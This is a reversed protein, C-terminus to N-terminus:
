LPLIKELVRAIGNDDVDAAVIDAENRVWEDATPMAIGIAAARFMSVDNGGDGFAVTKSADLHLREVLSTLALGKTAERATVDAFAPHWRACVADPISPMLAQEQEVTFFPSVQLVPEDPDLRSITSPFDGGGVQLFKEFLERVLPKENHLAIHREGVIVCSYDNRVADSLLLAVSERRLPKSFCVEDDVIAMAGNM